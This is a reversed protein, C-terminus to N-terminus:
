FPASVTTIKQVINNVSVNSNALRGYFELPIRRYL